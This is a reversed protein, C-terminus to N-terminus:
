LMNKIIISLLVMGLHLIVYDILNVSLLHNRKIFGKNIFKLNPRFQVNIIVGVCFLGNQKYNINVINIKM